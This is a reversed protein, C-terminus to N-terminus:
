AGSRNLSFNYGVWVRAKFGSFRGVPQEGEGGRSSLLGNVSLNM